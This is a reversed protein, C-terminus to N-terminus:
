ERHHLHARFQGGVDSLLRRYLQLVPCYEGGNREPDLERFCLGCEACRGGHGARWRSLHRQRNDSGGNAPSASTTIAYHPGGTVKVTLNDILFGTAGGPQINITVLNFATASNFTLTGMPLTNIGSYTGALITSGVPPTSTSDAYAILRISTPNEIPTQEATAFDMVLNTVDHSFQIVLVDGSPRPFTYNGSFLSLTLQPTNAANQISAGGLGGAAATFHAAVGGTTQDFPTAQGTTLTPTATDFDFTVTQARAPYALGLDLLTLLLASVWTPFPFKGM